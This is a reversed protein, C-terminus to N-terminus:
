RAETFQELLKDLGLRLTGETLGLIREMGTEVARLEAALERLGGPDTLLQLAREAQQDTWGFWLSSLAAATGVADDAHFVGQEIGDAIIATLVSRMRLSWMAMLAHRLRLNDDSYLAYGFAESTDRQELKLGGGRQFLTRIRAVADGDMEALESEVRDFLTEGFDTVLQELLDQKSSFYHYFTGKAVGVEATIQDISTREFGDREFLSLATDLLEKRRVDADKVVRAM